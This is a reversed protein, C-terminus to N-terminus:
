KQIQIKNKSYYFYAMINLTLYNNSSNNYNTSWEDNM